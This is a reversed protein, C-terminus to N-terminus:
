WELIVISWIQGDPATYERITKFGIRAHAKISRANSNAIETIAFDYRDKFRERYYRYCDDLIGKGRYNKDVCVQGVVMYNCVALTKGRFEIKEFLEFMPVLVPIDFKSKGTMAILYAIVEDGDKAIVSQEVANMKALDEFSHSVTVFGQSAIEEEALNAALNRKQLALIGYLDDDNGSTTYVIM